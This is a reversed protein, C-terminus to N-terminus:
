SGAAALLDLGEDPQGAAALLHARAVVTGIFARPELAFMELGGGTRAALQALVEHVEPLTPAHAIAGAVHRAAHTLDGEDIALRAMALEGEAVLRPDDTGEPM